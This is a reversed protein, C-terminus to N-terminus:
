ETHDLYLKGATSLLRLLVQALQQYDLEVRRFFDQIGFAMWWLLPTSAPATPMPTLITALFFPVSKESGLHNYKAAKLGNLDIFPVGEQRAVEAAWRGFDQDALVVKGDKWENRPIMSAIIPKAGKAKAGRVFQHLYWGYTHVTEHHGDPWVLEKTENGTGRLVGRRGVKTTDPVSGENHGFQM